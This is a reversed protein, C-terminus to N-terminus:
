RHNIFLKEFRALANRWVENRGIWYLRSSESGATNANARSAEENERLWYLYAEIEAQM